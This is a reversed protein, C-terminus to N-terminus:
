AYKWTLYLTRHGLISVGALVFVLFLDVTVNISEMVSEELFFTEVVNLLVPNVVGVSVLRNISLLEKVLLIIVVALVFVLSIDVAVNVDETVLEESSSSCDALFLTDM